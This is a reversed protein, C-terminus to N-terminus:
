ELSTSSLPEGLKELSLANLAEVGVFEMEDKHAWALQMLAADREDELAQLRTAMQNYADFNILVATARGRQTLIIPEEQSQKLIDKTKYRFDSIPIVPHLANM